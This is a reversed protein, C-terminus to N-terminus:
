ATRGPMACATAVLWVPQAFGVRQHHTAFDIRAEYNRWGAAYDGAMLECTAPRAYELFSSLEPLRGPLVTTKKWSAPM